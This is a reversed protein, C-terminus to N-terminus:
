KQGKNKSILPTFSGALAADAITLIASSDTLRSVVALAEQLSEIKEKCSRIALIACGDCIFVQGRAGIELPRADKKDCYSCNM